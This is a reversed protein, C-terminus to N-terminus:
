QYAEDRILNGELVTGPRQPSNFWTQKVEVQDEEFTFNHTFGIARPTDVLRWVMHLTADNEWTCSAAVNMTDPLTRSLISYPLLPGTVQNFVWENRGCTVEHLGTEDHLSFTMTNAKVQYDIKNLSDAPGILDYSEEFPDWELENYGARTSELTILKEQLSSYARRDEDLPAEEIAPLLHEWIVNLMAQMDPTGGTTAIVLDFEPIVVCFQGFAGDGRYANHTTQWFQFGYGQAWDNTANNPNDPDSANEIQKSTALAIWDKSLLQEGKWAGEQLYFQGLKAIDETTASLGYGGTNYGQPSKLWEVGEIGLPEFLRPALYDMLTEGSVEQLIAALMFTASTSYRFNSGPETEVPLALFTQVWDDTTRNDISQGSSMTLLHRVTMASLNPSVIDPLKDPFFTTVSDDLTLLGEQIGFGIATSTFSKSLSFLAHNMDPGYPQWWGEAVVHGNRVIMLSHFEPTVKQWDGPERQNSSDIAELLAILGSSRIGQAEPTSRPLDSTMPPQVPQEESCGFFLLILVLLSIQRSM